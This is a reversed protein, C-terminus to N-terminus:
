IPAPALAIEGANWMSCPAVRTGKAAQYWPPRVLVEAQSTHAMSDQDAVAQQLYIETAM